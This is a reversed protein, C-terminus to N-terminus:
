RKIFEIQGNRKIIRYEFEREKISEYDHGASVPWCAGVKLQCDGSNVLRHALHGDIYHLSGEFVKEAWTYGTEDMLLLLGEGSIGFYIEACDKNVHFHGKTMNCEGQTEIAELITVGWNLSGLTAPGKTYSYVEYVIPDDERKNEYLYSVEHYYKTYHEVGEGKLFANKCQIVYPQRVDMREGGLSYLKEM